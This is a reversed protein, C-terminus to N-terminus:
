DRSKGNKSNEFNEILNKIENSVPVKTYKEFNFIAIVTEGFAILEKKKNQIVYELTFSEQMIESTRVYVEIKDPYYLPQLYEIENTALVGAQNNQIFVNLLGTKEFYAIRGSELYTFYKSSNVHRLIDMDIWAIQITYSFNFDQLIRLESM